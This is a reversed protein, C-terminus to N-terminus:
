LHTVTQVVVAIAEEVFIGVLQTVLLNFTRGAVGVWFFTITLASERTEGALAADILDTDVIIAEVVGTDANLAVFTVYTAIADALVEAVHQVDYTLTVEDTDTACTDFVDAGVRAAILAVGAYLVLTNGVGTCVQGFRAAFMFDAELSVTNGIGTQRHFAVSIKDADVTLADIWAVAHFTVSVL